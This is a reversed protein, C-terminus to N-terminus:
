RSKRSPLHAARHQLAHAIGSELTSKTVVGGLDAGIDVLTRAIAPQIGTLITQAGLLRVAQAAQVLGNAVHTDIVPVGTVDIIVMSAQHAVVGALLAELVQQAREANFNGILPLVVVGDAIPLLPTSLARLTESQVRIIEEQLRHAEAEAQKRATIDLSICCVAHVQGLTDGLPFKTTLIQHEQGHIMLPDERHLLAGSTLALRDNEIFGEAEEPSFLDRDTKGLIASKPAGFSQEFYDNVLVYRGELDKVYIFFPAKNIIGDYFASREELAKQVRIRETVDVNVVAVYREGGVDVPQFSPEAYTATGEARVADAREYRQPPATFAEGRAARQLLAAYGTAKAKPDDHVDLKGVLAERSPVGLAERQKRNMEVLLGDARSVAVPVPLEELLAQYLTAKAEADRLRQELEAIRRRLGENEAQQNSDLTEEPAAARSRGM